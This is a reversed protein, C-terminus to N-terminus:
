QFKITLTANVGFANLVLKSTKTYNVLDWSYNNIESYHGGVRLFFKKAPIVLSGYFSKSPIIFSNNLERGLNRSYLFSNGIMMGSEVWLYKFVKFGVDFNSQYTGGWNKDLQYFGSVTSYLNLNSFPM